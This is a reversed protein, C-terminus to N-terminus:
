NEATSACRRNRVNIADVTLKIGHQFSTKATWGLEMEARSVDLINSPVDYARGSGYRIDIKQPVLVQLNDIIENLTHGEGSGINFVKCSSSTSAAIIAADVVDEVYLYDRVISGDGWIIIEEGQLARHAFSAIAGFNKASKQSPGFANSVRLIIRDLGHLEHFLTLHREMTLKGEGYFSTPVTAHNEAILRSHPEGYVTGGSSMFILRTSGRQAVADALKLGPPINETINALPDSNASFPVTSWALHYVVDIDNLLTDWNLGPDTIDACVWQISGTRDAPLQRCIARVDWDLSRCRLSLRAGIFGTAGTILVRKPETM